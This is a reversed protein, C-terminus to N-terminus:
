DDEPKFYQTSWTKGDKGAVRVLCHLSHALNSDDSDKEKERIAYAKNYEAELVDIQYIEDREEIVDFKTIQLVPLKKSEYHNFFAETIDGVTESMEESFWMELKQPTSEEKKKLVYGPVDPTPEELVAEVCEVKIADADVDEDEEEEDENEGDDDAGDVGDKSEDGEEEEDEEEEENFDEDDDDEDEESDEDEEEDSDKDQVVKARAQVAAKRKGRVGNEAELSGEEEEEDDDEDRRRKRPPM